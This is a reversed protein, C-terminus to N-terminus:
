DGRRMADFIQVLDTQWRTVMDTMDTQQSAFMRVPDVSVMLTEGEEAFIAIKLPLLAALEPHRNIILHTEDAKGYFVVRYKDTKYGSKTLGVDVRQVRSVVYGQSVITEQLKQMAEPFDLKSRAMLLDEAHAMPMLLGAMLILGGRILNKM